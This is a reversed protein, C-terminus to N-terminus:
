HGRQRGDICGVLMRNAREVEVELPVLKGSARARGGIRLSPINVNTQRQRVGLVVEGVQVHVVQDMNPFVHSALLKAGQLCCLEQSHQQQMTRHYPDFIGRHTFM